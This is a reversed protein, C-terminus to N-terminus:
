NIASDHVLHEVRWHHRQPALSPIDLRLNLRDMHHAAYEPECLLVLGGTDPLLPSPRARRDVIKYGEGGKHTTVKGM